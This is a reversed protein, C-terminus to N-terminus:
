ELNKLLSESKQFNTRPNPITVPISGWPVPLTRASYKSAFLTQKPRDSHCQKNRVSRALKSIGVCIWFIHSCIIVKSGWPPNVRRSSFTVEFNWLKLINAANQFIYDQEIKSKLAAIFQFDIPGWFFSYKGLAFITPFYIKRSPLSGM